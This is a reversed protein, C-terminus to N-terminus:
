LNTPKQVTEVPVRKWEKKKAQTEALLQEPTIPPRADDLQDKVKFEVPTSDKDPIEEPSYVGSINFARRLCQSEAVKQIMTAPMTIWNGQKKNYEKLAVEVHFPHEMDKRWVTAFGKLDEGVGSTGSDMGDFQGSQHAIALYGDRGVFISAPKGEQYKIAWIQRKLPDLNLQKAQYCLLQFETEDCKPAAISRVLALQKEWESKVVISKETM